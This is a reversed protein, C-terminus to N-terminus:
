PIAWPTLAELKLGPPLTARQCIARNRTRMASSRPMVTGVTVLVCNSSMAPYGISVHLPRDVLESLEADGATDRSALEVRVAGDAAGSPATGSGSASWPPICGAWRALWPNVVDDGVRGGGLHRDVLEGLEANGLSRGLGGERRRVIDHTPLHGQEECPLELCAAGRGVLDGNHGGRSARGGALFDVQRDGDEGRVALRDDSTQDVDEDAAEVGLAATDEIGVGLDSGTVGSGAGVALDVLVVRLGVGVTLDLKDEAVGVDDLSDPHEGPDARVSWVNLASCPTAPRPVTSTQVASGAAMTTGSCITLNPVLAVTTPHSASEFPL